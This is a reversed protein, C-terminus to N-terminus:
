YQSFGEITLFERLLYDNIRVRKGEGVYFTKTDSKTRIDCSSDDIPSNPKDFGKQDKNKM